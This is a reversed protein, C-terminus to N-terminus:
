TGSNLLLALKEEDAESNAGTYEIEQRAEKVKQDCESKMKALETDMQIAMKTIAEEHQKKLEELQQIQIDNNLKNEDMSRLSLARQLSM